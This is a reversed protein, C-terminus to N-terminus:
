EHKSRYTDKREAHSMETMLVTSYIIIIFYMYLATPGLICLPRQLPTLVFHSPRYGYTRVSTRSCTCKLKHSLLMKILLSLSM